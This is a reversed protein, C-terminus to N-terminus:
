LPEAAIYGRRPPVEGVHYRLDVELLAKQLGALESLRRTVEYGDRRRLGVDLL